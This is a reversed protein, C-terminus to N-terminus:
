YYRNVCRYYRNRWYRSGTRHWKRKLRHCGGRFYVPAYFGYGGYWGRHKRHWRGRHRWRRGGVLQVEAAANTTAAAPTAAAAMQGAAVTANAAPMAAFAAAAFVAAALINTKKSM